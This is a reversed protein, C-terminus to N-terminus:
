LFNMDPMYVLVTTQLRCMFYNLCIARIHWKFPMKTTQMYMAIARSTSKTNLQTNSTCVHKGVYTYMDVHMCCAQIYEYVYEHMMCTQCCIYMYIYMHDYMCVYEDGQFLYM